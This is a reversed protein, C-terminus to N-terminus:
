AAPPALNPAGFASPRWTPNMRRRSSLFGGLRLGGTTTYFDYAVVLAGLLVASLQNSARLVYHDPAGPPTKSHELLGVQTEGQWLSQIRDHNHQTLLVSGRRDVAWTGRLKESWRYELRAGSSFVFAFRPSLLGSRDEVSVLLEGSPAKLDVRSVGAKLDARQAGSALEQGNM